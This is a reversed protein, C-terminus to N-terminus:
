NDLWTSKQKFKEVFARHAAIEQQTLFNQLPRPRTLSIHTHEIIIQETKVTDSSNVTEFELSPARGDCLNLYVEALLQTDILAGHKTRDALSINFRKCLADLTAPSGPFKQRAILLTDIITNKELLPKKAWKLEANLFKMDFTANHIVLPSDGVFNLFDDAVAIFLPKDKLFADSLGHVNFAGQPMPKNPNIYCHFNNGTPLYNDLEVCAIECIRDGKAPDFGTTETDLCIHRM